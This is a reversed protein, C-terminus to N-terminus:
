IGEFKLLAQVDAHRILDGREDTVGMQKLWAEFTPIPVLVRLRRRYNGLEAGEDRRSSM